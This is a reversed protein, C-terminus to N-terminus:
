EGEHIGTFKVAVRTRYRVNLQLLVATFSEIPTALSLEGADLPRMNPIKRVLETTKDVGSTWGSFVLTGDTLVRPQGLGNVNMGLLTTPIVREWLTAGDRDLAVVWYATQTDEGKKYDSVVGLMVRQDNWRACGRVTRHRYAARPLVERGALFRGNGDLEILVPPLKM